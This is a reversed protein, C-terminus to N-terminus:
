PAARATESCRGLRQARSPASVVGRVREARWRRRSHPFRLSSHVHRASPLGSGRRPRACRLVRATAPVKWPSHGRVARAGWRLEGQTHKHGSDRHQQVPMAPGVSVPWHDHAALIWGQRLPASESRPKRRWIMTASPRTAQAAGCCGLPRGGRRQGATETESCDLLPLTRLQPNQAPQSHIAPCCGRERPRRGHCNLYM